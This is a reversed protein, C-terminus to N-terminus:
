RGEAAWRACDDPAAGTIALPRLLDTRITRQRGLAHYSVRVKTLEIGGGPEWHQCGHFGLKMRVWVGARIDVAATPWLHYRPVRRSHGQLRWRVREVRLPGNRLHSGELDIGDIRVQRDAIVLLDLRLTRSGDYEFVDRDPPFPSMAQSPVPAPFAVPAPVLAASSGTVWIKAQWGTWWTWTAAGGVAVAVLVTSAAVRRLRRRPALAIWRAWFDRREPGLGADTRIARAYERPEGLKWTLDSPELAAPRDLFHDRVQELMPRRLTEPVDSLWGAVARFYRRELVPLEGALRRVWKM